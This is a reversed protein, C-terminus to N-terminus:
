NQQILEKKLQRFNKRAETLTDFTNWVNQSDKYLRKIVHYSNHEMYLSVGNFSDKEFRQVYGCCFEYSSLNQMLYQRIQERNLNSNYKLVDDVSIVNPKSTKRVEKVAIKIQQLTTM